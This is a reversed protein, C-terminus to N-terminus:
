LIKQVYFLCNLTPLPPHHVKQMGSRMYAGPLIAPQPYPLGARNISTEHWYKSILWQEKQKGWLIWLLPLCM